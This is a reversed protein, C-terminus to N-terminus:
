PPPQPQGTLSPQRARPEPVKPRTIPHIQPQPPTSPRGGATPQFGAPTPTPPHTGTTETPSSGGPYIPAPVILTPPLLARVTSTELGEEATSKAGTPPRARSSTGPQAPSIPSWLEPPTSTTEAPWASPEGVPVRSHGLLLTPTPSPGLRTAAPSTMGGQDPQPPLPVGSSADTQSPVPRVQPAPPTSQEGKQQSPAADSSQRNAREDTRVTARTRARTRTSICGETHAENETRNRDGGEEVRGRRRHPRRTEQRAEMRVPNVDVPNSSEQHRRGFTAGPPPHPTSRSRSVAGGPDQSGPTAGTPLSPLRKLEDNNVRDAVPARNGLQGRSQTFGWHIDCELSM